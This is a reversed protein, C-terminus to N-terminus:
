EPAGKEAEMEEILSSVFRDVKAISEEQHFIVDNLLGVTRRMEARLDVWEKLYTM